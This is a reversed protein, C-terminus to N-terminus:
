SVVFKPRTDFCNPLLTAVLTVMSGWVVLDVHAHTEFWSPMTIGMGVIVVVTVAWTVMFVYLAYPAYSNWVQKLMNLM